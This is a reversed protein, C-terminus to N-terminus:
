GKDLKHDVILFILTAAAGITIFTWTSLLGFLDLAFFIFAMLLIHTVKTYFYRKESDWFKKMESFYRRTAGKM